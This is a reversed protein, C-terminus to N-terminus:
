KKGRYIHEAAQRNFDKMKNDHQHGQNSLEKAVSRKTLFLPFFTLFEGLAGDGNRYAEQSREYCDNRKQAAEHAQTRYNTYVEDDDTSGSQFHHTNSENHASSEHHQQNSQHQQQSSQHQQQNQEKKVAQYIQAGKELVSGVKEMSQQNGM